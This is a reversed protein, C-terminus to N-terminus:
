CEQSLLFLSFMDFYMMIFYLKLGTPPKFDLKITSM